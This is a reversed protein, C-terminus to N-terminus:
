VETMVGGSWSGYHLIRYLRSFSLAWERTGQCQSGFTASILRTRSTVEIKFKPQGCWRCESLAQFLEGWFERGGGGRGRGRESVEM